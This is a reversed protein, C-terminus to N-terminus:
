AHAAVFRQQRPAVTCKKGCGYARQLRCRFQDDNHGACIRGAQRRNGVGLRRKQRHIWIWLLPLETRQQNPQLVNQIAPAIRGNNSQHVTRRRFHLRNLLELCFKNRAVVADPRHHRFMLALMTM